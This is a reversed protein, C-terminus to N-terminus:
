QTDGKIFIRDNGPHDPNTDFFITKIQPNDPLDSEWLYNSASIMDPFDNFWAHDNIFIWNLRIM